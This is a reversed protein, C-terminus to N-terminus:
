PITSKSRHAKEREEVVKIWADLHEVVRRAAKTNGSTGEAIANLRRKIDVRNKPDELLRPFFRSAMETELWTSSPDEFIRLLFPSDGHKWHKDVIEAAYRLPEDKVTSGYHTLAWARWLRREFDCYHAREAPSKMQASYNLSSLLAPLYYATEEVRFALTGDARFAAEIGSRVTQADYTRLFGMTFLSPNRYLGGRWGEPAALGDATMELLLDRAADDHYVDIAAAVIGYWSVGFHGSRGIAFLLNDVASKLGHENKPDAVAVIVRASLDISWDMEQNELRLPVDATRVLTEIISRDGQGAIRRVARDRKVSFAEHGGTSETRLLAKAEREIQQWIEPVPQEQAQHGPPSSREPARADLARRAADAKCSLGAAIANLRTRNEASLHYGLHVAIETEEPTSTADELIRMLFRDDGEKWHEDLIRAAYGFKVGYGYKVGAVHFVGPTLAWARWLRREFDHYRALEEEDKLQASYNFSSLLARVYTEPEPSGLRETRAKAHEAGLVEIGRRFGEPEYTRLCGLAYVCADGGFVLTGSQPEGLTASQSESLRGSVIELLLDRAAADHYVDIAAVAAGYWNGCLSRCAEVGSKVGHEDKPDAVAAMVLGSLDIVINKYMSDDLRRPFDGTRVLTEITSRDSHAAIREVATGYKARAMESDIRMAVLAKAERGIDCWIEPPRQKQPPNGAAQAVMLLAIGATWTSRIM